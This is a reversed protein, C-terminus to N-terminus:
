ASLMWKSPFLTQIVNYPHLERIKPDLHWTGKNLSLYDVIPELNDFNSQLMHVPSWNKPGFGRGYFDSGSVSFNRAFVIRRLILEPSIWDASLDSWGNPQIPRYPQLGIEKLDDRVRRMHKTPKTSFDYKFDKSAVPWNLDAMTAMQLLWIEPNQFKEFVGTYEYAVELLAKHISPLDGGSEDWAKIIPRMMDKTPRDCIFHRCLKHTIFRRCSPHKALDKVIDLLKNKPTIGRQKYAKGFVKHNGPEHKKQSFKVPNAKHRKKSWPCEWGAMIYALAVVDKQSYGADPGVTHLELLERAHNENISVPEGKEKRWKGIQSNPGVSDSNDLSMIMAFSTTAAELLDTFSGCLNERVIERQFVGTNFNALSNKDLIAFHNSWFWWLREFVPSGSHRAAHHRINLELGEFFQKGTNHDLKRWAQKLGERDNKYRERIKDEGSRYDARKDLLEKESFIPGDWDISPVSEVQAQAWAVPDSPVEDNPGLGFAVKRFYNKKLSNTKLKM